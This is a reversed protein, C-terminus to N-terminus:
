KGKKIRKLKDSLSEKSTEPPVDEPEEEPIEIGLAECAEVIIDDRDMKKLKSIKIIDLDGVVERLEEDDLQTFYEYSYEVEGEEIEESGEGNGKIDTDEEVKSEVKSYKSIPKKSGHDEKEEDVIEGNFVKEIYSGDYIKLIDPIPNDAVYELWSMALEEDVHLPSSNRAVKIGIYETDRNEGKKEFVVDYGEDPDDIFYYEGTDDDQSMIVLDRDFTWPATWIKPGAAEDNRDIVFMFARKTARLAKITDKDAGEKEARAKEACVPCYKGLMENPCIYATKKQGINYHIYVYYAYHKTTTEWTPPLNRIKNKKGGETNLPKFYTFEKIFMSDRNGGANQNEIKKFSSVDRKEYKFGSTKFVKAKAM